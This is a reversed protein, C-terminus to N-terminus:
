VGFILVCAIMIIAAYYFTYNIYYFVRKAPQQKGFYILSLVLDSILFLGMGITFFIAILDTPYLVLTIVSAGLATGILFSYGLVVWLLKGFNLGILQGVLWVALALVAGVILAFLVTTGIALIFYAIFCIQAVSFALMGFARIRNTLRENNFELQALFVDGLMCAALGLCVYVLDFAVGGSSANWISFGVFAAAVVALSALGKFALSIFPYKPKQFVIFLISLAIAIGLLVYAVIM